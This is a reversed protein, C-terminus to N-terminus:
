QEQHSILKKGAASIDMTLVVPLHELMMLFIELGALVALM